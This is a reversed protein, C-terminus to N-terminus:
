RSTDNHTTIPLCSDYPSLYCLAYPMPIIWLSELPFVIPTKMALHRYYIHGPSPMTTIRIPLIRLLSPSLLTHYSLIFFSFFFSLGSRSLEYCNDGAVTKTVKTTEDVTVSAYFKGSSRPWGTQLLENGRLVLSFILPM